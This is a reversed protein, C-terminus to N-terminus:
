IFFFFNSIFFLFIKIQGVILLDLFIKKKWFFIFYFSSFLLEFSYFRNGFFEFSFFISISKRFKRYFFWWIVFYKLAVLTTLCCSLSFFFIISLTNLLIFNWFIFPTSSITSKHISLTHIIVLRHYINRLQILYNLRIIFFKIYILKIFNLYKLKEERMIVNISYQMFEFYQLIFLFSNPLIFIHIFISSYIYNLDLM